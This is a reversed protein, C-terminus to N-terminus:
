TESQSAQLAQVFAEVPQAGSLAFKRNFVFFPVGTVGLEHAEAVDQKVENSFEDGALMATVQEVDLGAQKAIAVLVQLDSVIKGQTHQALLLLELVEAGAGQSKAFHHMRHADFTNSVIAGDFQYELGVAAGMTTLRSHSEAVRSASGFKKALYQAVPASEQLDPALQFSKMEINASVGTQELAKALHANGLLCWPCAIDSWVEISTEGM